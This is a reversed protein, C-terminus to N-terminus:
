TLCITEFSYPKIEFIEFIGGKLSKARVVDEQYKVEYSIAFDKLRNFYYALEDLKAIQEYEDLGQYRIPNEPLISGTILCGTVCGSNLDLSTFSTMSRRGCYPYNIESIIRDKFFAIGVFANYELSNIDPERDRVYGRLRKIGGSSTTLSIQTQTNPNDTNLWYDSLKTITSLLEQHKDTKDRLAEKM